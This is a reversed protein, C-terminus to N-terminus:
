LTLPFINVLFANNIYTEAKGTMPNYHTHSGGYGDHGGAAGAAAAWSDSGKRGQRVGAAAAAGPLFLSPYQQNLRASYVDHMASSARHASYSSMYNQWPDNSAAQLMNSYPDHGASAAAAVSYLDHGAALAAHGLSSPYQYEAIWFSAPLNRQSLPLSEVFSLFCILANRM